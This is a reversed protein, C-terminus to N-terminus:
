DRHHTGPPANDILRPIMQMILKGVQGLGAALAVPRSIRPPRKAKSSASSSPSAAQRMRLREWAPKTCALRQKFTRGPRRWAKWITASTLMLALPAYSALDGLEYGRGMRIPSGRATRSARETTCLKSRSMRWPACPCWSRAVQASSQHIRAGRQRPLQLCAAARTRSASHRLLGAPWRELGCLWLGPCHRDGRCSYVAEPTLIGAGSMRCWKVVKRKDRYNRVYQLDEGNQRALHFDDETYSAEDGDPKTAIIINKTETSVTWQVATIISDREDCTKGDTDGFSIKPEKAGFEREFARYSLPTLHWGMEADSGDLEKSWPDFVVRLPDGESTIRPEQWNFRPGRVRASGDPLWRWRPGCLDACYRLATAGPQQARHPPFFATWSSPWRRTLAGGVPIAHLAPPRQEVQGAVNAVYQETQDM